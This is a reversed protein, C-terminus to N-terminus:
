IYYALCVSHTSCSPLVSPSVSVTMKSLEEKTPPAKKTSKAPKEQIPPPNIKLGLQPAQVFFFLHICTGQFRCSGM